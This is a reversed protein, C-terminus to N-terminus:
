GLEFKRKEYLARFEKNFIDVAIQDTIENKRLRYFPENDVTVTMYAEPASAYPYNLIHTIVNKQVRKIYNRMHSPSVNRFAFFYALRGCDDKYPHRIYQSDILFIREGIHKQFFEVPDSLQEGDVTSVYYDPMEDYNNNGGFRPVLGRGPVTFYSSTTHLLYSGQKFTITWFKRFYWNEFVESITYWSLYSSSSEALVRMIEDDSMEDVRYSQLDTSLYNRYFERVKNRYDDVGYAFETKIIMSKDEM